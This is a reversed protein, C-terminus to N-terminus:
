LSPAIFFDSWQGSAPQWEATAREVVGVSSNRLRELLEKLMVEDGEAVVEVRGDMLNRVWGTLGLLRAQRLVYYRMGVGQVVGELYVHLQHQMIEQRVGRKAETTAVTKGM